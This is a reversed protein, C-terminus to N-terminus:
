VRSEAVGEHSRRNRAYKRIRLTLTEDLAITVMRLLSKRRWVNIIRGPTEENLVCHTTQANQAVM